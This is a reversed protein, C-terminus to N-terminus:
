RPRCPIVYDNIPFTHEPTGTLSLMRDNFYQRMIYIMHLPLITTVVRSEPGSSELNSDRTPALIRHPEISQVPSVRAKMGEPYYM